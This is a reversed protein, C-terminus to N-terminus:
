SDDLRLQLDRLKKVHQEREEVILRAAEHATLGIAEPLVIHLLFLLKNARSPMHEDSPGRWNLLLQKANRVAIGCIVDQWHVLGEDSVGLEDATINWHRIWKATGLAEGEDSKSLSTKTTLKRNSELFDRRNVVVARERGSVIAKVYGGTEVSSLGIQQLESEVLDELLHAILELRVHENFEHVENPTLGVETDSLNYRCMLDYRIFSQELPTDKFRQLGMAKARERLQQLDGEIVELETSAFSHERIQELMNIPDITQDLLCVKLATRVARLKETREAQEIQVHRLYVDYDPSGPQQARKIEEEVKAIEVARLAAPDPKVPLPSVDAFVERDAHNVARSSQFSDSRNCGLVIFSLVACLVVFIRM